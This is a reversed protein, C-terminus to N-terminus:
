HGALSDKKNQLYKEQSKLKCILPSLIHLVHMRVHAHTHGHVSLGAHIRM